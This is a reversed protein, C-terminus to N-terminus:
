GIAAELPNPMFAAPGVTGVINIMTAAAHGHEHQASTGATANLRLSAPPGLASPTLLPSDAGCATAILAVPVLLSRRIRQRMPHFAQPADGSPALRTGTM